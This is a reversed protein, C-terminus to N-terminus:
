LIPEWDIAHSNKYLRKGYLTLLSYSELSSNNIVFVIEDTNDTLKKTLPDYVNKIRYVISGKKFENKNM